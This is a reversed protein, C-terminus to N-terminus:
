RSDSYGVVATHMRMEIQEYNKKRRERRESITTAKAKVNDDRKEKKKM